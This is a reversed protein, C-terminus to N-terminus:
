QAIVKLDANLVYGFGYVSELPLPELLSDEIKKRLRRIAVELRRSDYSEPSKGLALVVDDRSVAVGPKESLSSLLLLETRTLGLVHQQPDRLEWKIPDLMWVGQPAVQNKRLCRRIIALLEDTNVPKILYYDADADMGAVRDELRGECTIFIVPANSHQRHEKLIELGDGDPLNRDLLLAACLNKDSSAQYEAISGVGIAVYGELALLDCLAAQYDLDDEVVLIDCGMGNAKM